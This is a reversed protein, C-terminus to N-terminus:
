LQKTFQQIEQESLNLHGHEKIREKREKRSINGAVPLYFQEKFMTLEKSVTAEGEGEVREMVLLRRSTHSSLVQECDAVLRLGPHSPVRDPRYNQRIVPLWYVLRGGVRLSRASFNLLDTVLQQLTYAVKEPVHTDLYEEPISTTSFDKETGVRTTGERIGYPPDTVVCDLWPQDRWPSQSFDGAIVGLYQSTLGYQEFNAVMSEDEARVKQGVRSPRTRAHLTLYDIDGGLVLGGFEAAAVLLSGTGVFPDLVVRGAAVAGLNAMLLSLQPDMTTNGIFKRKKISLKTIKERQGEGVLRGFMIKLPEEPPNNHDFGHFEFYSFTVQPSSLSVPGQLPIYSLSEIKELREAGSVKKNFSEVHVKFSIDEALWKAQEQFPFKKLNSHFEQYSNGDAWLHLCYKVSISRSIIKVAEQESAMDLIVWPHESSRFVWVLPVDLLCSLSEFEALRFQTHESACWFLFLM